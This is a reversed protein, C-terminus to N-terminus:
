ITKPSAARHFAVTNIIKMSLIIAALGVTVLNALIIPLSAIMLGYVLWCSVGVTFMVYMVLSLSDTNRTRLVLIAQPLFSLTTLIAALGGILDAM